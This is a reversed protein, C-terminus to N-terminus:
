KKMTAHHMDELYNYPDWKSTEKLSGTAMDVTFNKYGISDGDRYVSIEVSNKYINRCLGHDKGKKFTQEYIEGNPFVKRVIGHLKKTDPQRMGRNIYLSDEWGEDIYEAGEYDLKDKNRSAKAYFEEMKAVSM